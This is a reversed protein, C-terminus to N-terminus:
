KKKKTLSSDTNDSSYRDTLNDSLDDSLVSAKRKRNKKLPSATEDTQNAESDDTLGDDTSEINENNKKSKKKRKKTNILGPEKFIPPSIEPQEQQTVQDVVEDNMSTYKGTVVINGYPEIMGIKYPKKKSQSKFVTPLYKIEKRQINYQDDGIILKKKKLKIKKGILNEELISKPIELSWIEYEDTLEDILWSAESDEVQLNNLEAFDSINTPRAIFKEPSKNSSQKTEDDTSLNHEMIFNNDRQSRQELRNIIYKISDSETTCNMSIKKITENNNNELCDDPNDSVEDDTVHNEQIDSDESYENDSPDLHVDDTPEDWHLDINDDNSKNTVRAALTNTTQSNEEDILDNSIDIFTKNIQQDEHLDEKDSLEDALNDEDSSILDNITVSEQSNGFDVVAVNNNEILKNGKEEDTWGVNEPVIIEVEDQYNDSYDVSNESSLEPLIKTPSKIKISRIIKIKSAIVQDSTIKPNLKKAPVINNKNLNDHSDDDTGPDNPINNLKENKEQIKNENVLEDSVVIPLIFDETNERTVQHNPVSNEINNDNVPGLYGCITPQSIDVTPEKNLEIISESSNNSDVSDLLKNLNKKIDQCRKKGPVINNVPKKIKTSEKPVQSSMVVEFSNDLEMQEIKQEDSTMFDENDKFKNEATENNNTSLKEEDNSPKDSIVDNNDTSHLDLHINEESKIEDDVDVDDQDNVQDQSFLDQSVLDQSLLNQSFLDQSFLNQSQQEKEVDDLVQQKSLEEVIKKPSNQKEIQKKPSKVHNNQNIKTKKDDETQDSSEDSSSVESKISEDYLKHKSSSKRLSYSSGISKGSNNLKKQLTENFKDEDSIDIVEDDTEDDTNEDDSISRLIFTKIEAFQKYSKINYQQNRLQSNLLKTRRKIKKNKTLDHISPNNNLRSKVTSVVSQWTISM